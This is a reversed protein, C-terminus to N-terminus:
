VGDKWPNLTYCVYVGREEPSPNPTLDASLISPIHLRSVSSPGGNTQWNMKLLAQPYM